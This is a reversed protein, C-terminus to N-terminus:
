LQGKLSFYEKILKDKYYTINFKDEISTKINTFDSYLEERNEISSQIVSKLSEVSSNEFMLGYSNTVTDRLAGINGVIPITGALLSEIITLGFTEYLSSSVITFVSESVYEKLEIPQLFPIIAVRDELNNSIISERLSSEEDGSGILVLNYHFNKNDNVLRKYAELILSINKEKSLRGFFLLQDKKIINKATSFDSNVPNSLVMLKNDPFGDRILISKQFESVCYVRDLIKKINWINNYLISRFYKSSSYLLGRRDCNNKIIHYKNGKGICEECLENKSYNYLCSNPCVAHYEHMTQVVKVGQKKAKKVALLVSPSLSSLYNQLHIVDPKIKNIFTNLQKKNYHFYISRLLKLLPNTTSQWNKLQLSNSSSEVDIAAIYNDVETCNGLLKYTLSFVSAAGGGTNASSIHLVKIKDLRLSRM